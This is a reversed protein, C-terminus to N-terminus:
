ESLSKGGVCSVPQLHRHHDTSGMSGSIADLHSIALDLSWKYSKNHIQQAVLQVVFPFFVAFWINHITTLLNIVKVVRSCIWLLNFSHLNSKSKNYHQLWDCILDHASPHACATVATHLYLVAVASAVNITFCAAIFDFNDDHTTLFILHQGAPRCFYSSYLLDV